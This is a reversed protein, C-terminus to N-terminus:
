SRARDISGDHSNEHSHQRSQHALAAHAGWVTVTTGTLWTWAPSPVNWVGLGNLIFGVSGLLVLGVRLVTDLRTM